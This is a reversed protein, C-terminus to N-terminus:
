QPFESLYIGENTDLLHFLRTLNEDDLKVYSRVIEERESRDIKDYSLLLYFVM